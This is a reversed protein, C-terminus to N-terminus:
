EPKPIFEELPLDHVWEIGAEHTCNDVEVPSIFWDDNIDQVPNFYTVGDFTKGEIENKELVTLKYMDM